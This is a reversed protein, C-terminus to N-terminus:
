PLIVPRNTHGYNEIFTRPSNGMAQSGRRDDLGSESLRQGFGHRASYPPCRPNGKRNVLGARKCVAAWTRNAFNRDDIEKGKPSTFILQDLDTPKQDQFRRDFISCLGEKNSFDLRRVKGNKTGKRIRAAGGDYPRVLSSGITIVRSKMDIDSWRLGILEAPRLGLYFLLYCYDRYHSHEPMLAITNMFLNIEDEDFHDERRRDSLSTQLPTIEEFPNSPASGEKVAWKMAAKLLVLNQNATVPHQRSRLENIFDRAGVDDLPNGKFRSINATVAAYRTAITQDSVRGSRRKFETFQEFLQALSLTRPAPAELRAPKYKALTPDFQETIIDQEIQAKITAARRNNIPSESFGLALKFEKGLHTWRLRLFKNQGYPKLTVTGKITRTKPESTM